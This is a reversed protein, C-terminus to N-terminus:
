KDDTLTESLEILIVLLIISLFSLVKLFIDDGVWSNMKSFLMGYVFGLLYYSLPKRVTTFSIKM